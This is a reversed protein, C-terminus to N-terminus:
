FQAWLASASHTGRGNYHFERDITQLFDKYPELAFREAPIRSLGWLGLHAIWVYKKLDHVSSGITATLEPCVQKAERVIQWMLADGVAILPRYTPSLNIKIERYELPM